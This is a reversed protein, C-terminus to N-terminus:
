LMGAHECMAGKPEGTSGSTFYVYALQDPAVAVGLDCAAHGEEYATDTLLIRVAPMPVLATRLSDTVALEALVLRCGSRALMARIREAPLHPEVPLYVGGAKFVALVAALWDLNRDTVVAVVGERDLGRALLARALRNARANLERYTWQQNGHVAAVAHPHLRVRQEFLEHVRADPLSRHPGALGELQFRLEEASLLSQRAHDADPDAAILSLATLHYGAIRAASDADLADTRYRLRLTLRGDDHRVVAVRLVAEPDREVDDAASEGGTGLPDGDAGTVELVTEFLPETLGLECRLDDVPDARHALLRAAVEHTHALLARWSGAATTLRCPLPRGSDTAAYGTTVDPEGTLAALVKAHATLFVSSLPVALDDALRHLATAHSVPIQAHHEALGAVPDRTWRPLPTFGGSATLAGHWFDRDALTHLAM